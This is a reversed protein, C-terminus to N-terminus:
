PLVQVPIELYLTPMMCPPNAQRCAPESTAYLKTKGPQLAEFYGQSEEPLPVGDVRKVITEDGVRVQWDRGGLNLLFRQGARLTVGREANEMTVQEDARAAPAPTKTKIQKLPLSTAAPAVVATAVQPANTTPTEFANM